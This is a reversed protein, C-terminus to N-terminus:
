KMAGIESSICTVTEIYDTITFLVVFTRTCKARKYKIFKMFDLVLVSVAGFESTFYIKIVVSVSYMYM